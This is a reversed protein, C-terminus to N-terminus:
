DRQVPMLHPCDFDFFVFKIVRDLSLGWQYAQIDTKWDNDSFREESERLCAFAGTAM